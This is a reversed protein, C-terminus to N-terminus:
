QVSIAFVGGDRTQVLFSSAGLAIPPASIASGDTAIRAVFSGDEASLLHVYGEFDGVVVFRALALPASVSRDTLRDQRWVSAGNTKDLALVASRDDTYYLHRADLAAGALSSAERAWLSSGRQVDFCAVRGQYAVACIRPLDIVPLSTIDAVRELETAGRPLAVVGEWAVSGTALALAVM